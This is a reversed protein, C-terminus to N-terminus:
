VCGHRTGEHASITSTPLGNMLRVTSSDLAASVHEDALKLRAIQRFGGPPQALPKV